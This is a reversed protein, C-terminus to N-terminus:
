VQEMGIACILEAYNVNDDFDLDKALEYGICGDSPCGGEPDAEPYAAAYAATQRSNDPKGDGNLDFRISNLQDLNMVENLGDDDGNHDVPTVAVPPVASSEPVRGSQSARRSHSQDGFEESTTVGDGDFDVRLAPYQEPTGFDWPQGGTPSRHTARIM